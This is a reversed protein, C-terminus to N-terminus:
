RSGAHKGIKRQHRERRPSAMSRRTTTIRPWSRESKSMSRTGVSSTAAFGLRVRRERLSGAVVVRVGDLYFHITIIQSYLPLASQHLICPLAPRLYTTKARLESPLHCGADLVRPLLPLARRLQKHEVLPGVEEGVLTAVALPTHNRQDCGM